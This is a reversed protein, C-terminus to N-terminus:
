SQEETVKNELEENSRLLHKSSTGCRIEVETKLEDSGKTDKLMGKTM